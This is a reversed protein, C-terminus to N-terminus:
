GEDLGEGDCNLVNLGEGAPTPLSFHVQPQHMYQHHGNHRGELYGRLIIETSALISPPVHQFYIYYWVRLSMPDFVLWGSGHVSGGPFVPAMTDMLGMGCICDLLIAHNITDSEASLDLLVLLPVSGMDLEQNTENMWWLLRVQKLRSQFGFQFLTWIIVKRLSDMFNHEWWVRLCRTWSHISSDWSAWIKSPQLGDRGVWHEQHPQPFGQHGRRSQASNVVWEIPRQLGWFPKCFGRFAVEMKQHYVLIQRKFVLLRM